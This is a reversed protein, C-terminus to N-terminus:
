GARDPRLKRRSGSCGFTVWVPDCRGRLEEPCDENVLAAGAAMPLLCIPCQLDRCASLSSEEGCTFPVLRSGSARCPSRRATPPGSGAPCPSLTQCPPDKRDPRTQLHEAFAAASAYVEYRYFRGPVDRAEYATFTLCAPERRVHAALEAIKERLQGALGPRADLVAIMPRPGPDDRSVKLSQHSLADRVSSDDSPM